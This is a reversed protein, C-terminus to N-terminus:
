VQLINNRRISAKELKKEIDEVTQSQRFYERQLLPFKAVDGCPGINGLDNTPFVHGNGNTTSINIEFYINLIQSNEPLSM